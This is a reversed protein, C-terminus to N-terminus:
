QWGRRWSGHLSDLVTTGPEAGIKAFVNVAGLAICSVSEFYTLIPEDMSYGTEVAKVGPAVALHTKGVGPPELIVTNHGREVFSM